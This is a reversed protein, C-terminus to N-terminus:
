STDGRREEELRMNIQRSLAMIGCRRLGASFDFHTRAPFSLFSYHEMLALTSSLRFSNLLFSECVQNKDHEIEYFHELAVEAAYQTGEQTHQSPVMIDTRQMWWWDPFGKSYDLRPYRRRGDQICDIDGDSRQPVNIRLAHREITFQDRMDDFTCTDNRFQM